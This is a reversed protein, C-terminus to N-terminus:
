SFLHVSVVGDSRAVGGLLPTAGSPNGEESPHGFPPTTSNPSFPHVSLRSFTNFHGWDGQKM